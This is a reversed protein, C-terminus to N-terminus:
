SASSMASSQSARAALSAEDAPLWCCHVPRDAESLLNISMRAILVHMIVRAVVMNPCSTTPTTHLSSTIAKKQRKREGTVSTLV